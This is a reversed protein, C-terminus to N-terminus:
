RAPMGEGAASSTPAPAYTVVEAEARLRRLMARLAGEFHEHVAGDPSPAVGVEELVLNQQLM